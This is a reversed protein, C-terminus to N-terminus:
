AVLYGAADMKLKKAMVALVKVRSNKVKIFAHRPQSAARLLTAM